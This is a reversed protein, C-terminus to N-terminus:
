SIEDARQNDASSDGSNCNEHCHEVKEQEKPAIEDFKDLILNEIELMTLAEFVILFLAFDSLLSKFYILCFNGSVM